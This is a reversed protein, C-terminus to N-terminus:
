NWVHGSIRYRFAEFGSVSQAFEIINAQANIRNLLFPDIDATNFGYRTTVAARYGADKVARSVEENLSGNPYCFLESDRNLEQRLRARSVTLEESVQESSINTMIPHTVTHSEINVGSRDMETAQEWSIPAYEKTPLVPIEVEMEKAIRRIEIEKTEDSMKKLSANVRDAAMFRENVNNLVHEIQHGGVMIDLKDFATNAMVFRMKDTWMWMKGDLFDTIVFLTAPVEHQKLVQFAIEYADAFGDDITVAATNATVPKGETLNASIESLPLINFHAKLYKIHAEFESRSVRFPDPAESFRHYTLILFKGGNAWHFPLFGGAKYFTQLLAKKM